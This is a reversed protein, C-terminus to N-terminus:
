RLSELRAYHQGIIAQGAESQMWAFWAYYISGAEPPQRGVIMIPMRLPYLNAQVTEQSAPVPEDGVERSVAVARVRRGDIQGLSAYGVAGPLSSVLEIVSQGSLAMRAGLTTRRDEMVLAQFVLRTDAGSERSVVTVPLDPGGLESWNAVQGQFLRRLEATTLSQIPNAPHVIIVLGDQGLPAAWLPVDQPVYITLAYPADGAALRGYATDWNVEGSSLALVAGPLIYAEALDHLLPYTTTTALMRVSLIQPTATPSYVPARCSALALSLIVITRKARKM